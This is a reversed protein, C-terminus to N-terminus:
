LGQKDAPAIKSHQKYIELFTIVCSILLPGLFIGIPGYVSIGGFIGLFLLFIPLKAYKGILIPRLINDILGVLLFGWLIIFIGWEPSRVFIFIIGLPLWILSTGGVPILAAFSTLLGIFIPVPVKAIAYGITAIIGQILATLLFGRVIAIIMIYLQNAIRYKYANDMPIMDIFWNLFQNGDRFFLFLTAIVVIFNIIFFIINKIIKGGSKVIARQINELIGLVIEHLNINLYSTIQSLVPINIESISVNDLWMQMKPYIQSSEKFLMWGFFLIPLIVTICVIITSVIASVTKKDSMRKTIWMHMPYFVITLTTSILVAGIFPSLIKLLQYLLFILIGFFFFSFIQSKNFKLFKQSQEM